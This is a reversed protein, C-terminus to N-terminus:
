LVKKLLCERGKERERGRAKTALEGICESMARECGGLIQTYSFKGKWEVKAMLIFARGKAM